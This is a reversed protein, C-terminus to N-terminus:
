AMYSCLTLSPRPKQTSYLTLDMHAKAMKLHIAELTASLSPVPSSLAVRHCRFQSQASWLISALNHVQFAPLGISQLLGDYIRPTNATIETGSNATERYSIAGDIQPNLSVMRFTRWSDQIECVISVSGVCRLYLTSSLVFSNLRQLYSKSAPLTVILLTRIGADLAARPTPAEPNPDARM